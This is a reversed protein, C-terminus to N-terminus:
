GLCELWVVVARGPAEGMPRARVIGLRLRQDEVLPKVCTPFSDHWPQNQQRWHAGAIIYGEGPGDREASLGIATGDANAFAYGEVVRVHAPGSLHVLAVIAM